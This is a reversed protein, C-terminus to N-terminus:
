GVHLNSYVAKVDQHEELRAVLRLVRDADTSGLAVTARPLQVLRADAITVGSSVFAAHVSEFAEPATVVMLSDEDEEVDEAGADIAVDLVEVADSAEVQVLGKRDFIYAVSGAKSLSGGAKSFLSRLDAVTRNTNDTLVEVLIAIGHPAYGEYVHEEYNQGEIAGSGRRIARAINEKPMNERKAKQIALALKANMSPDGGAARAAVTIERSVIAWAKSRRSDTVAKQRRIKSWKNHGAM